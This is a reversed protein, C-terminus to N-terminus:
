KPQRGALLNNNEQLYIQGILQMFMPGNAVPQKTSAVILNLNYYNPLSEVEQLFNLINMYDGSVNVQLSIQKIREAIKQGNFDSNINLAVGHVAAINELQTIFELEQNQKIFISDLKKITGEIEQLADNIKNMNLGRALKEELEKKEQIIETNIAIIEWITPYIIFLVILVFPIIILGASIFFRKKNQYNM